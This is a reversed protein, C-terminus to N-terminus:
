EKGVKDIKDFFEKEVIINNGSEFVIICTDQKDLYFSEIKLENVYITEGSLLTAKIFDILASM